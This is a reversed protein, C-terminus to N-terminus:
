INIVSDAIDRFLAATSSDDHTEPHFIAYLDVGSERLGGLKELLMEYVDTKNFVNILVSLNTFIVSCCKEDMRCKRIVESLAAGIEVLDMNFLTFDERAKQSSSSFMFVFVKQPDIWRLRRLTDHSPLNQFSLVYTEIGSALNRKVQNMMWSVEKEASTNHNPIILRIGGEKESGSTPSPVHKMSGQVKDAVLSLRQDLIGFYLLVKAIIAFIDISWHEWLLFNAFLLIVWGIILKDLIGGFVKRNYILGLTISGFFFPIAVAMPFIGTIYMVSLVISTAPAALLIRRSSLDWAGLTLLSYMCSGIVVLWSEPILGRVLIEVGYVTFGLGWAIYFIHTELKKSFVKYNILIGLLLTLLGNALLPIENLNM